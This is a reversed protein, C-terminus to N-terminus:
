GGAPLTSRLSPLAFEKKCNYFETRGGRGKASGGLPRTAELPM